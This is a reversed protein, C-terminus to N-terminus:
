PSLLLRGESAGRRPLLVEVCRQSLGEGPIKPPVCHMGLSGCQRVADAAAPVSHLPSGDAAVQIIIPCSRNGAFLFAPIGTELVAVYGAAGFPSLLSLM